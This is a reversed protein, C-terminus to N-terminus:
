QFSTRRALADAALAETVVLYGEVELNLQLGLALHTDDEVVLIRPQTPMDSHSNTKVNESPRAVQRNGSTRKHMARRHPNNQHRLVPLGITRSPMTAGGTYATAGPTLP